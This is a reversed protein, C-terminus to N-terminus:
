TTRSDIGLLDREGVYIDVRLVMDKVKPSDDALIPATDLYGEWILRNAGAWDFAPNKDSLDTKNFPGYCNEAETSQHFLEFDVKRPKITVGFFFESKGFFDKGRTIEADALRLRARVNGFFFRTGIEFAERSTVLSDSGGHCKHVFTRPSGPIQANTQKVLGDSRNYNPGYEGGVAFLRNAWSALVAVDLDNVTKLATGKAVSGAHLMKVLAYDPDEEIKKELRGPRPAATGQRPAPQSEGCCFCRDGPARDRAHIGRESRSGPTSMVM